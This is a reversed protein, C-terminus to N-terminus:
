NSIKVGFIILFFSELGNLFISQVIKKKNLLFFIFIKKKKKKVCM